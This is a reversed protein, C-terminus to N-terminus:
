KSNGDESARKSDWWAIRRFYLFGLCIDEFCFCFFLKPYNKCRVIELNQDSQLSSIAEPIFTLM